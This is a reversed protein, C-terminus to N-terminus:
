TKTKQSVQFECLDVQRQGGLAPILPTHEWRGPDSSLKIYETRGMKIHSRPVSTLVESM